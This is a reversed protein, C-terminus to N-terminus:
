REACMLIAGLPQFSGSKVVVVPYMNTRLSDAYICIPLLGSFGNKVWDTKISKQMNKEFLPVVYTKTALHIKTARFGLYLIIDKLIKRGNTITRLKM